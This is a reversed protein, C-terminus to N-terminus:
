MEEDVLRVRVSRVGQGTRPRSPPQSQANAEGGEGAGGEEGALRAVEATLTKLAVELGRAAARAAQLAAAERGIEAELSAVQAELWRAESRLPVCQHLRAALELQAEVWDYLHQGARPLQARQTRPPLACRGRDVDEPLVDEAQPSM